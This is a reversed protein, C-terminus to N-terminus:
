MQARWAVGFRFPMYWAIRVAGGHGDVQSMLRQWDQRRFARAVSVPADNQVLANLGAIRAFYKLAYYPMWHRHIDNSFWGLRATDCTWQLFDRLDRDDLHHTFLSSIIFDFAGPAAYDFVNQTVYRLRKSAALSEAVQKAFPSLDVGVLEAELDHRDCYQDIKRLMDGYGFGVDLLRFSKLQHQRIEGHLWSITPRYGLSLQNLWGLDRLCHRFTELGVPKTDMWEPESSRVRLNIM